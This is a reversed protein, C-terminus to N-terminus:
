GIPYPGGNCDLPPFFLYFGLVSLFRFSQVLIALDCITFNQFAFPRDFYFCWASNQRNEIAVSFSFLIHFVSDADDM